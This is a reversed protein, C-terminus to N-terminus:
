FDDTMLHFLRGFESLPIQPANGRADGVPVFNGNSQNFTTPNDTADDTFDATYGEEVLRGPFEDIVGVVSNATVNPATTGDEPDEPTRSRIRQGDERLDYYPMDFDDDPTYVFPALADGDPANRYDEDHDAMLSPHNQVGMAIGDVGDTATANYADNGDVRVFNGPRIEEAPTASNASRDRSQVYLQVM